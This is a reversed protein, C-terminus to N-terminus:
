VPSLSIVNQANRAGMEELDSLFETKVHTYAATILGCDDPYNDIINETAM